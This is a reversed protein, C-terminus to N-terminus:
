GGGGGGGGVSTVVVSIVRGVIRVQRRRVHTTRGHCM